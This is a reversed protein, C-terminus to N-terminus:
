LALSNNLNSLDDTWSSLNCEGRDRFAVDVRKKLVELSPSAVVVRPLRHWRRVVRETFFFERIDLRFM